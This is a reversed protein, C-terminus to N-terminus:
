GLAIVFAAFSLAAAIGSFIFAWTTISIGPEPATAMGEDDDLYRNALRDREMYEEVDERVQVFAKIAREAGQVNRAKATHLVDAIIGMRVDNADPNTTNM